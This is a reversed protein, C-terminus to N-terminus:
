RLVQAHRAGDTVGLSLRHRSDQATSGTGDVAVHVSVYASATQVMPQSRRENLNDSWSKRPKAPARHHGDLFSTRTKVFPQLQKEGVTACICPSEPERFLQNVHNFEPRDRSDGAPLNASEHNIASLRVPVRLCGQRHHSRQLHATRPRRRGRGGRGVVSGSAARAPRLVPRGAGRVLIGASALAGQEDPEEVAMTLWDDFRLAADIVRPDTSGLARLNHFRM